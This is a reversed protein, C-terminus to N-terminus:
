KDSKELQNANGILITNPEPIEFLSQVWKFVIEEALKIADEAKDFRQNYIDNKFPFYSRTSIGYPATSDLYYAVVIADKM